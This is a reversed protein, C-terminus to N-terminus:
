LHTRAWALEPRPSDASGALDLLRAAYRQAKAADGAAFAARAAGYLGRFRNPDRSFSAEYAALAAAPQGAQMLMDGLLERAPLIRGPTVIHKEQRDERDAAARMAALAADRNGAAFDAWAAATAAQTAVEEAWYANKAAALARALGALAEAEARATAADGTRAAGIARAFRNLADTWPPGGAAAPLAAAAAWDGREVALRAPMATRAYAAAPPLPAGMPVAFARATAAAAAADRGLQLEAYVLYDSAHQSEGYERGPLAAAYAKENSAISEEWAGVRTFIHSPMHQAHPADPALRAYIRAAALGQAAIPPADFSHIIYHAIGPHDPHKALQANLIAVARAYAAFTQDSQQQTGAIYLAAFIQAEDDTPYKAALAEYAAARTKQRDSEPRTAFDQWYAGVAEVYARERETRAGIARAQALAAQGAAAEAPSPGVGALPNNMMLAAIGWAAIACTPDSALVDRFRQEGASYWFSHLMAIGRLLNDQVAPACSNAFDVHGVAAGAGHDHTHQAFAPTAILLLAAALRRM